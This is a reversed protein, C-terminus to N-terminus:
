CDDKSSGTLWRAFQDRWASPQPPDCALGGLEDGIHSLMLQWDGAHALGVPQIFSRNEM